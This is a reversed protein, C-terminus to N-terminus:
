ESAGEAIADKLEKTLQEEDPLEDEKVEEKTETEAEDLAKEVKEVAEPSKVAELRAKLDDIRAKMCGAEDFGESGYGETARLDDFLSRELDYDDGFLKKYPGVLGEIDAGYATKFNDYDEADKYETAASELSGIIVDNVSHELMRIRKDFDELTSKLMTRFEM